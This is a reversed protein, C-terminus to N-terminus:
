LLFARELEAPTIIYDAEDTDIVKVLRKKIYELEAYCLYCHYVPIANVDGYQIYSSFASGQGCTYIAKCNECKDYVKTINRQWNNRIDNLWGDCNPDFQLEPYSIAGNYTSVMGNNMISLKNKSGSSSNILPTHSAYAKIRKALDIVKVGADLSIDWARFLSDFSFDKENNFKEVMEIDHRLNFEISSPRLKNVIYEATNKTSFHIDGITCAVGFKMGRRHMSKVAKLIRNEYIEASLGRTNETTNPDGDLSLVIFVGAEELLDLNSETLLIGNTFMHQNVNAIGRQSCLEKIKKSAYQILDMRLTPEGGYYLVKSPNNKKSDLFFDLWRDITETKMDNKGDKDHKQWCYKCNLNCSTTLALTLNKFGYEKGGRQDDAAWNIKDRINGNEVQIRETPNLIFLGNVPDYAIKRM